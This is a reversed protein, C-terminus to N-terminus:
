NLIILKGQKITPKSTTTQIEFQYIYIGGAVAMQGLNWEIDADDTQTRQFVMRGATDYVRLTIQCISEERDCDLHMYLIESSRVPNPYTTLSYITPSLDKVVQFNLTASSSNNLLDWARFFLSHGGEPMATFKFSVEGSTYSGNNATFYDNMVYTQKIDNDVVLLLDHGIGAGATNIGNEDYISAYFHPDEFTEDGSTFRPNNLWMRITPGVSDVVWSSSSGGIVFDHYHGIGDAANQRDYAYYVIRGNGYNYHIDKPLRLPMSFRGDTVAVEGNFLINPYDNFTVIVKKSEQKEDNDRTKLQQLKDYVTIEVTGNFWTATDLQDDIIYGKLTDTDLAHLTDRVSETEVHVSRPYKLKLAPDAFLVYPLKNPDNGTKNKSLRTAQGLTMPYDFPSSHAFLTDCLYRNIIENQSAYVTRTSSLVGIAGGHPNLIAYEGASRSDSGRDFHSFSCTAFMWFALNKNTMAKIDEADLMNEDTISLPGAHGSYNFFLAGQRLLNHLRTRALPYSDGSATTEQTYADDYIKTVVYDPNKVRVLEAGAEAVRTHLGHDGDDALVIIRNRWKGYSENEM